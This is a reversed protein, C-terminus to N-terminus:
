WNLKIDVGIQLPNGQQAFVLPTGTASSEVVFTNPRSNTINRGWLSISVNALLADCHIGAIAYFPQRLTNDNNWYISGQANLNAGIVFAQIPSYHTDIRYDVTAGLTHQPIFPVRHNRYNVMTSVGDITQADQYDRFVSQTFAYSTSWSLHNDIHNGRLSLEAGLSRSRGANVMMRGFGYNGAMVSLQLNNVTTLYAAIDMQIRNSNLHAGIEYNWTTEPAYTITQAINNYDDESHPITYEGRQSSNNSLETQLIDSFMQYNYGGSRYGKSIVGYINSGRTGLKYTLGLKPLLQHYSNRIKNTLNSFLKSTAQSGMVTANCTMAAQANYAIKVFSYDYRIGATLTLRQSLDFNSEHFIGQNFSPLHFTGPITGLDTSVNVGGRQEILQKAMMTAQETTMGTAEYRAAMANVMAKYMASQINSSLMNNMDSFFSVPAEIKNWQYSSFSGLTWRWALNKNEQSLNAHGKLAMEHTVANQHQREEMQMFDYSTYDIDMLMYDKMLQYSTTSSFTINDWQKTLTVGTNLMNRRYNAQRNSATTQNEGDWLGYPFANQRVYQYDLIYDIKLGSKPQHVIRLKGGAENAKDARKGTTANTFFGKQGNYFGALSWATNNNIKAYHALEIQRTFHSGISLKARTGQYDMPNISYTRILGGETNVGYLTGQPGRLIDIRSLEYSHSNYASKSALPIGDTYIGVAPSNIRSGIGRIYISSTYRSGYSPMTFSPVFATLDRLDRIAMRKLDNAGFMSSSLPQQRLSFTEKPQSIVVVEDIDVVKSTDNIIPAIPNNNNNNAIATITLVLTLIIASLARKFNM